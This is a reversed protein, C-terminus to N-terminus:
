WATSPPTLQTRNFVDSFERIKAARSTKLSGLIGGGVGISYAVMASCMSSRSTGRTWTVAREGSGKDVLSKLALRPSRPDKRGRIRPRSQPVFRRLLQPRRSRRRCSVYSLLRPPGSDASSWGLRRGVSRAQSGRALASFLRPITPQGPVWSSLPNRVRQDVRHPLPRPGVAGGSGDHLAKTGFASAPDLRSRRQKVRGVRGLM